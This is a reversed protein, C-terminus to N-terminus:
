NVGKLIRDEFLERDDSSHLVSIDGTTELVVARVQAFNFVNAERLKAILDNETVKTEALAKYDIEGDCMLIRPQNNILSAFGANSKRLYAVLYQLAFMVTLAIAGDVLAPKKFVATSALVSGIAITMAFDFPSMKSFSRLGALRTLGVMLIYVMIVGFAIATASTWNTYIWDSM